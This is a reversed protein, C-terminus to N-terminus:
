VERFGVAAKRWMEVDAWKLKMTRELWPIEYTECEKVRHEKELVFGPSGPGQHTGVYDPPQERVFILCTGRHDSYFDHHLDFDFGFEWPLDFQDLPSSEATLTISLIPNSTGHDVLVTQLTAVRMQDPIHTVNVVLESVTQHFSEASSTVRELGIEFSVMDNADRQTRREMVDNNFRFKSSLNLCLRWNRIKIDIVTGAGTNMYRYEAQGQKPSSSKEEDEGLSTGREMSPSAKDQSSGSAMGDSSECSPINPPSGFLSENNIKRSFGSFSRIHPEYKSPGESFRGKSILKDYNQKKYPDSLVDWAAGAAITAQKARMRGFPGLYLTTEIHNERTIREYAARIDHISATQNLGLADYHTQMSAGTYM